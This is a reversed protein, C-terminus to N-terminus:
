QRSVRDEELALVALHRVKENLDERAQNLAQSAEPRKERVGSLVRVAALRVHSSKDKCRELLVQFGEERLAGGTRGLATSAAERVPASPDSKAAQCLAQYALDGQAGILGLTRVATKRLMFHRESLYSALLAEVEQPEPQIAALAEMAAIQTFRYQAYPHNKKELVELIIPLATKGESGLAQIRMLLDRPELWFEQALLLALRKQIQDREREKESIQPSEPESFDQSENKREATDKEELSSEEIKEDFLPERTSKKESFIRDAEESPATPASIMKSQIEGPLPVPSQPPLVSVSTEREQPLTEPSDQAPDKGLRIELGKELSQTSYHGSWDEEMDLVLRVRDPHAFHRIQLIPASATQRQETTFPSQLDWIDLVLRAPNQLTFARIRHFSKEALVQVRIDRSETQIDIGRLLNTATNRDEPVGAADAAHSVPPLSPEPKSDLNEPASFLAETPLSEGQQSDLAEQAALRQNEEHSLLVETPLPAPAPVPEILFVKPQPPSLYQADATLLLPSTEKEAKLFPIIAFLAILALGLIGPLLYRKKM